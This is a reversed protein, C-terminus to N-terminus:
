VRFQLSSKHGKSGRSANELHDELNLPCVTPDERYLTERREDIWKFVKFLRNLLVLYTCYM